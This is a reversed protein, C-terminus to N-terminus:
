FSRSREFEIKLKADIADDAFSTVEAGAVIRLVRVRDSKFDVTTGPSTTSTTAVGFDSAINGMRAFVGDSIVGFDGVKIHEDGPAV